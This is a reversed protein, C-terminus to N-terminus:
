PELSRRQALKKKGLSGLVVSLCLVITAVAFVGLAIGALTGSDRANALLASGYTGGLTGGIVIGLLLSPVFAIVAGALAGRMITRRDAFAAPHKPMVAAILRRAIFFTALVAAFFGIGVGFYLIVGM